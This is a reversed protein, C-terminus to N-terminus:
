KYNSHWVPTKINKIKATIDGVRTAGGDAAYNRARLPVVGPLNHNKNKVISDNGKIKDSAIKGQYDIMAKLYRQQAADFNKAAVSSANISPSVLRAGKNRAATVFLNSAFDAIAAINRKQMAKDRRRREYEVYRKRMADNDGSLYEAFFTGKDSMSSM